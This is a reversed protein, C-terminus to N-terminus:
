RLAGMLSRLGDVLEASPKRAPDGLQYGGAVSPGKVALTVRVEAGTSDALTLAAERGASVRLDRWALGGFPARERLTRLRAALRPDIWGPAGPAGALRRPAASMLGADEAVPHVVACGGGECLRAVLARLLEVTAAGSDPAELLHVSFRDTAAVGGMNPRRLAVLVEGAPSAFGLRAEHAVSDVFRSSAVFGGPPAWGDVLALLPGLHLAFMRQEPDVERLMAATVPVLEDLGYFQRYTDVVGSCQADFVCERCGPRKVKDRRKVEYKDWGESLADKDDIAVTMTQEGDHHIWPALRPAICQPLNGINVDFGPAFGAVMKELFPVMDTFRPLMDRLEQESRIGADLPRIMDLHLQRVGYRGLLSPFDVVSEYNSRVVCMNVSIPQHREAVNKMSQVLRGFSGLKKTTREHAMMNGGQFSFRFMFRGGTALIEDVFEARATKAGNTFIVIEEFGLDVSFQVVNMFEPQITPEGGLITLKRMGQDFGERIKSTIPEAELPFAERMETRQGSVCFVCRNNCMHGLQIEMQRDPEM